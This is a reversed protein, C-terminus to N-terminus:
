IHINNFFYHLQINNEVAEVGLVPVDGEDALIIEVEEEAVEIRPIAVEAVEIRPMAVEEEVAETTVIIVM